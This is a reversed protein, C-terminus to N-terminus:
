QIQALAGYRERIDIAKSLGYLYYHFGGQLAIKQDLNKCDPIQHLFRKSKELNGMLLHGLSLNAMLYKRIQQNETRELKDQWYGLCIEVEPQIELYNKKKRKNVASLANIAKQASDCADNLAEHGKNKVGFTAAYVTKKQELFHERLIEGSEIYFYELVDAEYKALKKNLLKRKKEPNRKLNYKMQFVPNLMFHRIPLWKSEQREDVYFVMPTDLLIDGTHSTVTLRATANVECLASEMDAFDIDSQVNEIKYKETKLVITFDPNNTSKRYPWKNFAIHRDAWSNLTDSIAEQFLREKKRYDEETSQAKWSIEDWWDMPCLHSDVIIDYTSMSEDLPSKPAITYSWSVPNKIPKIKKQANSGFPILILFILIAMTKYQKNLHESLYSNLTALSRKDVKYKVIEFTHLTSCLLISYKTSQIADIDVLNISTKFPPLKELRGNRIKLYPTLTKHLYNLFYLLAIAFALLTFDSHTSNINWQTIGLVVWALGFFVNLSQRKRCYRIKM